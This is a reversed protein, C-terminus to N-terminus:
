ENQFNEMKVYYEFSTLGIEKYSSAQTKEMICDALKKNVDYAIRVTEKKRSISELDLTPAVFISDGKESIDSVKLMVANIRESTECLMERYANAENGMKSVDNLYRLIPIMATRMLPLIAQYVHSTADIGKKTTTLPLDKPEESDLYVIGRFMVNSIHWKKIGNVGWGTLHSHDAAVILRDNCFIYWGSQTPIGIEGLGAIIKYNVSGISGSRIYPRYTDSKLMEIPCGELTKNNITIVLGKSLSFNLNQQINQYLNSVFSSDDFLIKVDENLVPVRIITGNFNLSTQLLEYNFNWDDIDILTDDETLIRKSKKSWENVNVNVCFHNGKTQSEVYFEKGIKFLARKMGIGFRGVSNHILPANDPRGFRFAYNKASDLPFGGCNDTISFENGSISIDIKFGDYNDKNIRIAGDISNDILDMIADEISIDRTIMEIFFSKTPHGAIINNNM